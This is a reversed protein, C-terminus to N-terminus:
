IYEVKASIKVTLSKPRAIDKSFAAAECAEEIALLMDAEQEKLQSPAVIKVVTWEVWDFVFRGTEENKHKKSDTSEYVFRIPICKYYLVHTDPQIIRTTRGVGGGGIYYILDEDYDVLLQTPISCYEGAEGQYLLPLATWDFRNLLEQSVPYEKVFAM